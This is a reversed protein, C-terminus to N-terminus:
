DRCQIRYTGFLKAPYTENVPGAIGWRRGCRSLGHTLRNRARRAFRAGKGFDSFGCEMLAGGLGGRGVSLGGSWGASASPQYVAPDFTACQNSPAAARNPPIARERQPITARSVPFRSGDWSGTRCQRWHSIVQGGSAPLGPVKESEGM